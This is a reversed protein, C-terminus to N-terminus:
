KSVLRLAFQGVKKEASFVVSVRCRTAVRIDHSLWHVYLTKQYEKKRETLYGEISTYPTTTYHVKKKVKKALPQLPM